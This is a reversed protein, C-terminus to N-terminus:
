AANYEGAARCLKGPKVFCKLFLEANGDSKHGVTFVAGCFACAISEPIEFIKLVVAERETDALLNVRCHLCVKKTFIGM